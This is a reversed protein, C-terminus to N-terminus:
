MCQLDNCQTLMCNSFHEWQKLLNSNNIPHQILVWTWLIWVYRPICGEFSVVESNPCLEQLEVWSLLVSPIWSCTQLGRGNAQGFVWVTATAVQFCTSGVTLFHALRAWTKFMGFCLPRKCVSFGCEPASNSTTYRMMCWTWSIISKASIEHFTMSVM